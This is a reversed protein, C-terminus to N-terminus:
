VILFTQVYHPGTSAPRIYVILKKSNSKKSIKIHSNINTATNLHFKYRTQQLEVLLFGLSPILSTRVVKMPITKPNKIPIDYGVNFVFTCVQFM